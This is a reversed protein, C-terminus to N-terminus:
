ITFKKIDRADSMMKYIYDINCSTISLMLM